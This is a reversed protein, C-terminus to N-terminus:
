VGRAKAARWQEALGLQQVWHEIYDLDVAARQVRLIGAIDELQRESQSLKAWELKSVICDEASAVYVPVGAVSLPTRREFETVSFPRSKRCIFDVKWGSSLDIVNFLSENGYAELATHRDVYHADIPLSDLFQSLTGLVPAIVFDIDHTARPFGYFGSAFSGTLMYPVGAAELLRSFRQIVSEPTEASAM